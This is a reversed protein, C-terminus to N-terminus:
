LVEEKFVISHNRTPGRTPRERRRTGVVIGEVHSRAAIRSIQRPSLNLQFAAETRSIKQILYLQMVHKRHNYEAMRKNETKRTIRM